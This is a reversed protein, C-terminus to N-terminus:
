PQGQWGISVMALERWYRKYLFYLSLLVSIGLVVEKGIYFGSIMLYKVFAPSKLGIAPLTTALARDWQLLPGSAYLNYTLAGFMLVGFIFMVIGIVPWKALLYSSRLDSTVNKGKKKDKVRSPVTAISAM